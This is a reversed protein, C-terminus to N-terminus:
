RVIIGVAALQATKAAKKADDDVTADFELCSGNLEADRTVAAVAVDATTADVAHINMATATEAGEIGAVVADPSPAFSGPSATIEGLVTGAPVVGTGSPITINDRSRNKNAESLIPEGPHRGETFTTPM